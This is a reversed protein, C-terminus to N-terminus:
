LEFIIMKNLELIQSIKNCSEFSIPALTNLFLIYRKFDGSKLRKKNETEDSYM